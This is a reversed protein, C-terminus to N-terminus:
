VRLRRTELGRELVPIIVNLNFPKLIYDHAGSKMAQLASDITAHGTMLIGVLNADIALAQRLLEIGDMGPMMLDTLLLDFRERRLTQLAQVPSHAGVVQYGMRTLTLTLATVNAVEDDVVLLRAAATM